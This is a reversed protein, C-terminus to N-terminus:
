SRCGGIPRFIIKSVSLTGSLVSSPLTLRKSIQYTMRRPRPIDMINSEEFFSAIPIAMVYQIKLTPTCTPNAAIPAVMARM